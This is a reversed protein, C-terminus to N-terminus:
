GAVDCLRAVCMRTCSCVRCQGLMLHYQVTSIPVTGFKFSSRDFSFILRLWNLGQFLRQESHELYQLVSNLRMRFINDFFCLFQHWFCQNKDNKSLLNPLISFGTSCSSLCHDTLYRWFAGRDLLFSTLKKNSLLTSHNQFRCRAWRFISEPQFDVTISFTNKMIKRPKRELRTKTFKKKVLVM